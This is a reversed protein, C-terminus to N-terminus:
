CIALKAVSVKKRGRQQERELIRDLSKGGITEFNIKIPTILPVGKRQNLNLYDLRLSTPPNPPRDAVYADIAGQVSRPPLKERWDIVPSIGRSEDPVSLKNTDPQRFPAVNTPIAKQLEVGPAPTIPPPTDIPTHSPIISTEIPHPVASPPAIPTGPRHTADDNKAQHSDRDKLTVDPEPKGKIEGRVEDLTTEVKAEAPTAHVTAPKDQVPVAPEALCKQIDSDTTKVLPETAQQRTEIPAPQSIQEGSHPTLGKDPEYANLNMPIPAGADPAVHSVPEGRTPIPHTTEPNRNIIPAIARQQSSPPMARTVPGQVTVPLLSAYRAPQRPERLSPPHTTIQRHTAIIAPTVRLHIIRARNILFRPTTRAVPAHAEQAALRAIIKRTVSTVFRQAPVSAIRPAFITRVVRPPIRVHRPTIRNPSITIAGPTRVTPKSIPSLLTIFVPAIRAHATKAQLRPITRVAVKQAPVLNDLKRIQQRLARQAQTQPKLNTVSAMNLTSRLDSLTSAINHSRTRAQNLLAGLKNLGGMAGRLATQAEMTLFTDAMAQFVAKVTEKQWQKIQEIRSIPVTQRAILKEKEDEMCEATTYHVFLVAATKVPCRDVIQRKTLNYVFGQTPDHITSAQNSLFVSVDGKYDAPLANQIHRTITHVAHRPLSPRAMQLRSRLRRPSTTVYLTLPHPQAMDFDRWYDEPETPRSCM